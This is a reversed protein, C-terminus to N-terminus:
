GNFKRALVCIYVNLQESLTMRKAADEQNLRREM